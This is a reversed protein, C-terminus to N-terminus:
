KGVVRTGAGMDGAAAPLTGAEVEVESKGVRKVNQRGPVFNEIGAVDFGLKTTKYHM